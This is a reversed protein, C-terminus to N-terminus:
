AVMSGVVRDNRTEYRLKLDLTMGPKVMDRKPRPVKSQPDYMMLESTLNDPRVSIQRAGLVMCLVGYDKVAIVTGEVTDQSWTGENWLEEMKADDVEKIAQIESLMKEVHARNAEEDQGSLETVGPGGRLVRVKLDGM